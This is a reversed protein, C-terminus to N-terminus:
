VCRKADEGPRRDYVPISLEIAKEALTACRSCLKTEYLEPEDGNLIHLHECALHRGRGDCILYHSQILFMPGIAIRWLDNAERHSVWPWKM